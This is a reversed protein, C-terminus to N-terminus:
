EFPNYTEVGMREFDRINRTVVIWGRALATAAILGDIFPVPGHAELRGWEEAIPEDVPVIRNGFQAVVNALWTELEDARKSDRRRVLEIGKRVEALTMVSAFLHRQPTMALWDIVVTAPTPKSPESLVNTDVLYM